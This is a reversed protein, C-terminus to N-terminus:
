TSFYRVAHALYPLILYAQNDIFESLAKEAYMYFISKTLFVFVSCTQSSTYASKHVPVQQKSMALLVKELSELAGKGRVDYKM